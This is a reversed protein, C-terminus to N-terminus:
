SRTAPIHVLGDLLLVVGAGFLIGGFADTPYHWRLGIVAVSMAVALAGGVLAVVPRIRRPVALTWAMAVATMDAVNGSPYSDVGGFHRGVLPKLVLEVGVVVAAPGVVCAAARRRDQPLAVLGALLTAAVLGAPWHLETIVTLAHSRLSPDVVNFVWNDLANPAPHVRFVVAGVLAAGVLVAGVATEITGPRRVRPDGGLERLRTEVTM